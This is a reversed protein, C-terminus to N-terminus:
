LEYLNTAKVFEELSKMAEKCEGDTMHCVTMLDKTVKPGTLRVAVAIIIKREKSIKVNKLWELARKGIKLAWADKKEPDTEAEFARGWEIPAIRAECCAVANDYSAFFAVNYAALIACILMEKSNVNM